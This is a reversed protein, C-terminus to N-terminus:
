SEKGLCVEYSQWALGWFVRVYLYVNAAQEFRWSFCEAELIFDQINYKLFCFLSLLISVCINNWVIWVHFNSLNYENSKVTFTKRKTERSCLSSGRNRWLIVKTYLIVTYAECVTWCLMLMNKASCKDAFWVERGACYPQISTFKVSHPCQLQVSGANTCKKRYKGKM